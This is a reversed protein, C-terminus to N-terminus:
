DEKKIIYITSYEGNEPKEFSWDLDDKYLADDMANTDFEVDSKTQDEVYQTDM